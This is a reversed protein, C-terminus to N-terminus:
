LRTVTITQPLHDLWGSPVPWLSIPTLWEIEQQQDYRSGIAKAAVLRFTTVGSPNWIGPAWYSGDAFLLNDLVQDDDPFYFGVAEAVFLSPDNRVTIMPVERLYNMRVSALRDNKELSFACASQGLTWGATAENTLSVAGGPATGSFDLRYKADTTTKKCADGYGLHIPVGCCDHRIVSIPQYRWTDSWQAPAGQFEMEFRMWVDFEIKKGNHRKSPVFIEDSLLGNLPLLTGQFWSAGVFSGQQLGGVFVRGTQDQGDILVRVYNVYARIGFNIDTGIPPVPPPYQGDRSILGSTWCVGSYPVRVSDLTMPHLWNGTGVTKSSIGVDAFSYGLWNAPSNHYMSQPRVWSPYTAYGLQNDHGGANGDSYSDARFRIAPPRWNWRSWTWAGQGPVGTGVVDPAANLDVSLYYGSGLYSNDNANVPSIQNYWLFNTWYYFILGPGVQYPYYSRIWPGFSWSCNEADPGTIEPEIPGVARAFRKVWFCCLGECPRSCCCELLGRSTARTSM